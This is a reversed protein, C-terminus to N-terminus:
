LDYKTKVLDNIECELIEAIRCIRFASPIHTGHVYRSITAETVGLKKALTGQSIRKRHLMRQLNTGFELSWVSEWENYESM